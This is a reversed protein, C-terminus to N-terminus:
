LGAALDIQEGQKLTVIAKRIDNRKGAKGRFRKTKGKINITNVKDVKVDFITEVAQRVDTKSATPSIMFVVKNYESSQTSKETVVPRLIVDYLAAKQFDTVETNESKKKRNLIRM